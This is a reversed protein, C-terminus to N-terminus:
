GHSYTLLCFAGTTLNNAYIRAICALRTTSTAHNDGFTQVNTYM